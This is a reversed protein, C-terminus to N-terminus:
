SFGFIFFGELHAKSVCPGVNCISSVFHGTLEDDVVGSEGALMDDVSKQFPLFPCSMVEQCASEVVEVDTLTFKEM